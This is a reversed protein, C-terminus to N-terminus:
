NVTDPTDHMELVNRTMAPAGADMWNKFLIIACGEGRPRMRKDWNKARTESEDPLVIRAGNHTMADLLTEATESVLQLAAEIMSDSAVKEAQSATPALKADNETTIETLLV